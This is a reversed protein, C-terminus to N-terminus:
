YRSSTLGLDSERKKVYRQLNHLTVIDMRLKDYTNCVASTPVTINNKKFSLSSLESDLQKQQRSTLQLPSTIQSSRLYCGPGRAKFMDRPVCEDPVPALGGQPLSSAPLPSPSASAAM